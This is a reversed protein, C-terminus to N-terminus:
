RVYHDSNSTCVYIGELPELRPKIEVEGKSVKTNTKRVPTFHANEGTVVSYTM